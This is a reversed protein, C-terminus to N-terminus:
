CNCSPRETGAGALKRLSTDGYQIGSGVKEPDLQGARSHPAHKVTHARTHMHLQRHTYM